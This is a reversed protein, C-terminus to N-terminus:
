RPSDADNPLCNVRVLYDEPALCDLVCNQAAVLHTCGGNPCDPFIEYCYGAHDSPPGNELDFTLWLGTSLTFMATILLAKILIVEKDPKHIPVSSVASKVPNQM